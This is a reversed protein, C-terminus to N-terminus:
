KNKAHIDFLHNIKHKKHTHDYEFLEGDHRFYLEVYTIFNDYQGECKSKLDSLTLPRIETSNNLSFFYRTHYSVGKNNNIVRHLKKYLTIPQNSNLIEYEEGKYLRYKVGNNKVYAFVSDKPIQYKSNEKSIVIYNTNFIENIHIKTVNNLNVEESYKNQLYSSENKYIGVIKQGYISFTSVVIGVMVITKKM